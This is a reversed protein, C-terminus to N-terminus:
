PITRGERPMPMRSGNESLLTPQRRGAWLHYNASGAPTGISDINILNTKLYEEETKTRSPNTRPTIVGESTGEKSAGNDGIIVYVITNDLLGTERLYNIVRGIQYDTYTLYGAYVEM